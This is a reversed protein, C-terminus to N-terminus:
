HGDASEFHLRAGVAYVCQRAPTLDNEVVLGAFEVRLSPFGIPGVLRLKREIACSIVPGDRCSGKCLNAHALKAELTERFWSRSQGSHRSHAAFLWRELLLDRAPACHQFMEGFVEAFPVSVDIGLGLGTLM